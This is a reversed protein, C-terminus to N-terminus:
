YGLIESLEEKTLPNAREGNGRYYSNVFELIQLAISNVLLGKCVEVRFATFLAERERETVNPPIEGVNAPDLQGKIVYNDICNDTARKIGNIDRELNTLDLKAFTNEKTQIGAFKNIGKLMEDEPLNIRIISIINKYKARYLKIAKSTATKLTIENEPPTRENATM